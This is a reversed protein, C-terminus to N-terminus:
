GKWIYIWMHYHHSCYQLYFLLVVLLFISGAISILYLHYIQVFYQIDIKHVINLLCLVFLSHHLMLWRSIELYFVQLACFWLQVIVFDLLLLVALWFHTPKYIELFHWLIVQKNALDIIHHVLLAIFTLYEWITRLMTLQQNVRAQSSEPLLQVTQSSMLVFLHVFILMLFLLVYKHWFGMVPTHMNWCLNSANKESYRSLSVCGSPWIM